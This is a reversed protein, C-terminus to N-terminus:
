DGIYALGNAVAVNQARGFTEVADLLVPQWSNSVDIVQVGAYRDAVYVKNGVADLGEALGPTDISGIIKPSSPNSVDIIQLGGNNGWDAVYAKNGVVVVRFATDPTSVSGVVSPTLPNEVNVVYLGDNGVVYAYSGVVTVDRAYNIYEFGIVALPTDVLDVTFLLGGFTSYDYLTVYAYDGVVDIGTASELDDRGYLYVPESPTSVDIVHLGNYLKYSSDVGTTIIYAKEGDSSVDVDNVFLNRTPHDTMPITYNNLLQPAAPNSVDIIQLGGSADAVYAIAPPGAPPYLTVAGAEGPTDYRGLVPRDDPNSIDIVQLGGSFDAVYAIDGSVVVNRGTGPTDILNLTSLTLAPPAGISTVKM